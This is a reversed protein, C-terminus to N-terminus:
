GSLGLTLVQGTICASEPLTFFEVAHCLEGMTVPRKITLASVYKDRAEPSLATVMDTEVLSPAVVNCTIQFSAVEKALVQSFQVVAAKTAAYVSAGEMRLPVAVSSINVIRGNKQKMMIKVAERCIMFTAQFNTRWLAEANASPTMPALAALSIAANNVVVDLRGFRKKIETMWAKIAAEDTVDMATHEYGAYPAVESRSCGVVQFGRDAFFAALGRGIGRSTGTVLAVRKEIM